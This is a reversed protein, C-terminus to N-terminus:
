KRGGGSRAEGYDIWVAGKGEKENVVVEAGVSRSTQRWKNGEEEERPWRGGEEQGDRGRPRM